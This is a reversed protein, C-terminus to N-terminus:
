EDEKRRRSIVFGSTIALITGAITLAATGRGGTAPLEAGPNNKITITYIKSIDQSLSADPNSSSGTGDENTLEVARDASITFYTDQQIIYGDPAKSETLRYRGPALYPDDFIYDTYPEETMDIEGDAYGDVTVWASGNYKRLQFEAGPLDKGSEDVKKLILPIPTNPIILTYEIKNTGNSVTSSVTVGKPNSKGSTLGITGTPSISYYIWENKVLPRYGNPATIEELAYDGPEMPLNNIYGNRATTLASYNDVVEPTYTGNISRYKYLKFVAGSLPESAREATKLIKLECPRNRVTLTPPNTPTKQDLSYYASIDGNGSPVSVTVKGEDEGPDPQQPMTITLSGPLGIYGNPSETETLTYRKGYDLYILEPDFLGYENSTFEGIKTSSSNETLTFTAGALPNNSWDVKKLRIAPRDKPENTVTFTRVKDNDQVPWPSSQGYTVEYYFPRSQEAVPTGNLTLGEDDVNPRGDTVASTIHGVPTCATYGSVVGEDNVNIEEGEVTLAVEYVWYDGLRGGQPLSDYYWVLTQNQPQSTYALKRVSYPVLELKGQDNTKYVAFYTPDRDTITRADTWTKYVRLGYGQKNGILVDETRNSSIQGGVGEWTMDDQYIGHQWQEREIIEGNRECKFLRYGDPIETPREIVKYWLGPVLDLVEVTYYPPIETIAGYTSSDFSALTQDSYVTNGHEDVTNVSSLENFNTTGNPYAGEPGSKITEFRGDTPNWYCYKGDPDKVRYVYMYAATNAATDFPSGFYLRFDFTPGGGTYFEGSEWNPYYEEKTILNGEPNYIVKTFELAGPEEAENVYRVSSRDAPSAATTRFDEIESTGEVATGEVEKDNVYVNRYENPNIGCEVIYYEAITEPPTEDGRTPFTIEAPKDPPLFFVNYYEHSGIKLYPDFELPTDTGQYFVYDKIYESGTLDGLAPYGEPNQSQYYPSNSRFSETSNTLQTFSEEGSFRYFIQYPFLLESADSVNEVKKSLQVAGKKVAALNFKMHLNSASAGREMYFIRMTHASYDTFVYNEGKKVFVPPHDADGVLLKEVAQDHTLNDRETYHNYFLDYLTTPQGNVNVAGTRFNVNGSVASHIGGLDIVLEGDVYLWFDDDGSFEFIIDHGWADLGSPTQDFSAELEMGFYYDPEGIDYLREYKRPDDESLQTEGNIEYLNEGNKKAFVGATLDNYPYFQGHKLTEKESKDHTGLQDYVVFKDGKLTAFNQTSDYVYYGTERYTSEIFLHNVTTAGSYLTGLNNEPKNIVDPYGNPAIGSSLLGQTTGTGYGGAVSGLFKNMYGNANNSNELDVMKMTIGYMINDVTEVTNLTDDVNLEQVVAFYFDASDPDTRRCSVIYEDDANNNLTRDVKLSSYAYSSGDWALIPTYYEGYRRGSMILGIPADSLHAEPTLQPAIWKQSAENYLDYYHTENGNADKYVIFKWLMDDTGNGVWEIVDGSEHCPVLKGEGNVAFYDYGTGNWSRTYIIIYKGEFTDPDDGYLNIHDVNLEESSVSIKQAAYTKGYQPPIENSHTKVLYLWENGPISNSTGLGFGADLNGGYTLTKGGCKLCIQNGNSGGGRSVEILSAEAESSVLSLGEDSIKLYQGGASLRYKETESDWHFEWETVAFGVDNSPVYLKDKHDDEQTFVTLVQPLLSGPTNQNEEAMMAKGTSSGNWLMLGFSQGDLKHPDGGTDAAKFIGIQSNESNNNDTYLRIGKGGNSYQLWKNENKVKFYFRQGNTESIEFVAAASQDDTYDMFNGSTNYMYGKGEAYINYCNAEGTGVLKWEAAGGISTTVQYCDNKWAHTFYNNTNERTVYLKVANNSNVWDRLEDTSSITSGLIVLDDLDVVAYVSFGEAAFSIAEGDVDVNGIVEGTESGDAFHVVGLNGSKTDALEIKVDVVTGPAPQYRVAPDDRDVIKIEFLRIYGQSDEEVGLANKTDTIYEAYSRGENMADETIEFVALDADEPIGTDAGYTVTIHYNHGNSALINKEITTGVIAYVSFGDAEFSVTGCDTEAELIEVDEGFHIVKLEESEADVLSIQVSVTNGESPQVSEGENVISIDFFRAYDIEEMGLAERAGTLYANYNDTEYGEPLIESVALDAGEPIGAEPGYTVTIDYSHGDSAVIRKELTRLGIVAFISFGDTEFCVVGDEVAAELLEGVVAEKEGDSLKEDVVPEAGFSEEGQEPKEANPESDSFGGDRETGKLGLLGSSAGRLSKKGLQLGEAELGRKRGSLAGEEVTEDALLTEDDAVASQGKEDAPLEEEATYHLVRVKDADNAEPLEISVRVGSKPQIKEGEGNLISIDFARSFALEYGSPIASKDEWNEIENVSLAADSPIEAESGCAVTIACGNGFATLTVPSFGGPIPKTRVLAFLDAAAPSAMTLIMIVSLILSITRTFLKM